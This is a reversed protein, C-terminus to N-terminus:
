VTVGEAKARLSTIFQKPNVGQTSQVYRRFASYSGFGIREWLESVTHQQALSINNRLYRLRWDNLYDRFGVGAFFNVTQSLYLQNTGLKRSLIDLDVDSNLFPKQEAMVTELRLFLEQGDKYSLSTHAYNQRLIDAQENARLADVAKSHVGVTIHYLLDDRDEAFVPYIKFTLEVKNGRPTKFIGTHFIPDRNQSPNHFREQLSASDADLFDLLTNEVLEHAECDILKCLADNTYLINAHKDAFLIPIM